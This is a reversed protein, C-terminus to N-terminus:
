GTNQLGAAVGKLTILLLNRSDKLQAEDSEAGRLGRLARLQLLSLADVYPNRLEVARGLVTHDQLLSKQETIRLVWSTTLDLEEMVLDALDQRQGLELYRQAIRRDTKALSMEINDILARFLPWGEYAEQLATVDGIAELATGLGFWGTLNIRAQAWAFNWPIARLDDLSEVSLGRKAPRSGIALMGVADQPTVEAFWPAFGEAGILEDFRARSVDDLQRALETFRRAADANRQETSPASAMLTAAAVQEIHRMAIDPNGYRASIVEGQETVKFRLDVSHPPQALIARNAPGGGRGLAGGRGHFQTLVIGHSRAWEAIKEQARYLELTAAVPGVDKASDSYGLMVEMRRGTQELRKQVAPFSLSEELIQPANRLDAYTEFLPIVDLVPAEEADGLAKEALAYVDALNQASQTFSVIYRRCADVGSRSQIAAIARFTDLVEEGPVAPAEVDPDELWALTQSHVKSHQRVELEALHFGFTEVQWILDQLAGYAARPAGGAALSGQVTRLDQLVQEPGAYAIDAHRNRTAELRISAALLVRRHPEGPSHESAEEALVESLQRQKSWLHELERSPPTYRDDLTMTLAVDRTRRQLDDLIRDTAQEAAKRTASATVNPNGDRDGAIWTGLRIFAPAKPPVSGRDRNQLWDDMRRYARTFVSSFSSDFVGLATRVEDLPSPNAVRLQATRWMTDIEGLLERTNEARATLGLRPDDRRDLLDGIRRVASSIANRRAETPHATLVPHFRLETLRAEAEEQGIEGALHELAAAVSDSPKQQSLPAEGDRIRLTRVRHQEEALNALLFYCTFARAVEKAREAPFTEVLDEAQRLQDGGPDGHAAITLERLAEVDQLLGESGYETLVQGLLDGLLGVDHRMAEPVEHTAAERAHDAREAPPVESRAAGQSPSQQSM